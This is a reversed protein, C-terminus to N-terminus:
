GRSRVDLVVMDGDDYLITCIDILSVLQKLVLRDFTQVVRNWRPGEDVPERQRQCRLCDEGRQFMVFDIGVQQLYVQFRDSPTPLPFEVTRHMVFDDLASRDAAVPMGPPPSVMGLHNLNWIPNRSFDLLAGNDVSVLIRAGAPISAQAERTQQRDHDNKVLGHRGVVFQRLNHLNTYLETAENGSQNGVFLALCLALATGRTSRSTSFLGALGAPILAAYLFPQSYRAVGSGGAFHFSLFLSGVVAASLAALLVRWRISDNEFPNKALLLVGVIAPVLAGATLTRALAKLKSTVSDGVIDLGLGYLLYGKGLVPYFPTGGSLYQQRMWPILLALTVLGVVSLETLLGFGPSHLMRLGYWSAVFLVAFIFFTGKLSCLAALTLALFLLSGRDMNGQDRSGRYATQILTLYLVTGTLHGGLNQFCEVMLVLGTLLCAYGVPGQLDRRIMSWTLGAIMIWCLGPDLLYAYKLPCVAAVLALLFTQGNLSSLQHESFPDLGISGTQHLRALPILYGGKDDGPMFQHGLSSAYKAAVFLALLGIWILDDRRMPARAGIASGSRDHEGIARFSRRELLLAGIIVAIILVILVSPTAVGALNLLGGLMTMGAMGWGAALCIDRSGAPQVVRAIIRGLAAFSLLVILGWGLNPILAIM